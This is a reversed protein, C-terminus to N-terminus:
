LNHSETQIHTHMSCNYFPCEKTLFCISDQLYLGDKEKKQKNTLCHIIKLLNSIKPQASYCIQRWPRMKPPGLSQFVNELIEYFGDTHFHREKKSIEVIVM